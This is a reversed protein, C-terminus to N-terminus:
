EYFEQVRAQVRLAPFDESELASFDEILGAGTQAPRFELDEMEALNQFYNRGIGSTQGIPGDLWPNAALDVRQGTLQVWRQTAWDAMYGRESGLWPSPITGKM